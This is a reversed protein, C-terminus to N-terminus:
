GQGGCVAERICSLMSLNLQHWDLKLRSEAEEPLELFFLRPM